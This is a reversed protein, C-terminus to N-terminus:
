YLATEAHMDCRFKDGSLGHSRGYNETNYFSLYPLSKNPGLSDSSWRDKFDYTDTSLDVIILENARYSAEPCVCLEFCSM